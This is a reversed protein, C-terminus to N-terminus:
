LKATAGQQSTILSILFRQYIGVLAKSYAHVTAHMSEGEVGIREEYTEILPAFHPEAGAESQFELELRVVVEPHGAGVVREFGLLRGTLSYQFRKGESYRGVHLAVGTTQLYQVMHDQILYVPDNIWHRYYYRRIELPTSSDAYLLSRERYIGSMDLPHVALKGQLVLAAYNGAIRDAGNVVKNDARVVPLRYYYDEPVSGASMCGPLGMVICSLLFMVAWRRM